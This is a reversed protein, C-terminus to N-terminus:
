KPAASGEASGGAEGEPAPAKDVEWAPPVDPVIPKIDKPPPPPAAAQGPPPFAREAAEGIARTRRELTSIREELAARDKGDLALQLQAFGYEVQATEKPGEMERLAPEIRPEFRETYVREALTKAASKQGQDWLAKVEELGDVVLEAEDKWSHATPATVPPPPDQCALLALLAFM